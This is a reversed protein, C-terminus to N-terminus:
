TRHCLHPPGNTLNKCIGIAVPKISRDLGIVGPGTPVQDAQPELLDLMRAITYRAMNVIKVKQVLLHEFVSCLSSPAPLREVPPPNLAPDLVNGGDERGM